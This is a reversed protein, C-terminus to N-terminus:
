DDVSLSERPLPIWVTAADPLPTCETLSGLGLKHGDVIVVGRGDLRTRTGVHRFGIKPHPLHDGTRLKRLVMWRDRLSLESGFELIELKGDNPHGSPAVNRGRVFQANCIALVSGFLMGGRWWPNRILCHSAGVFHDLVGRRDLFSLEFLDLTARRYRTTNMSSFSGLTHALDGGVVIFDRVGERIAEFVQEDTGLTRVGGDPIASEGWDSGRRVVM